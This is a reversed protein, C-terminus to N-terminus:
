LDKLLDDGDGSKPEDEDNSGDGKSAVWLMVAAVVVSIAIWLIGWFIPPLVVFIEAMKYADSGAVTRSILDDKIDFIAYMVSTLGIFKLAIDNVKESLFRGMLIMAAGFALGFFFGFWTRIFIATVLVVAVGIGMSIYRDWRTRAAAVLILSGFFMSGLYGATLTLFRSGGRTYCVGGQQANIEIHDISGGTIIAALGHSIEHLLVVFIKLPTVLATGWLLAVVVFIALLLGIAKADVDAFLRELKGPSDAM